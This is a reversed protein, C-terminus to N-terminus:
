RWTQHAEARFHRLTALRPEGARRVAELEEVDRLIERGGKSFGDDAIAEFPGGSSLEVDGVDRRPADALHIGSCRQPNEVQATITAELEADRGVDDAGLSLSFAAGEAAHAVVRGIEVPNQIM